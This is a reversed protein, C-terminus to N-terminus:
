NSGPWLREAVSKPGNGLAGGHVITDDAMARGINVMMKFFQPNSGLGSYALMEKIGEDGFRTMVSHASKLSEDFNAGGIEPLARCEAEWQKSLAQVNQAIAAQQQEPTGALKQQIGLLKEFAAQAKDQPLGLEKFLSGLEQTAEADLEIGAMAEPAKFPEYAEPAGSAEETKPPEADAAPKDGTLLSTPEETAAKSETAPAAAPAAAAAPADGGGAPAGDAPAENMPHLGFLKRLQNM